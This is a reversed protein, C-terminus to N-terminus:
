NSEIESPYLCFHEHVIRLLNALIKARDRNMQLHVLNSSLNITRYSFLEFEFKFEITSPGLKIKFYYHM